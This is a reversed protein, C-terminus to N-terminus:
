SVKESMIANVVARIAQLARSRPPALVMRARRLQSISPLPLRMEFHFLKM